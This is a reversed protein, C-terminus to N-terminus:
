VNVATSRVVRHSRCVLAVALEYNLALPVDPVRTGPSLNSKYNSAM